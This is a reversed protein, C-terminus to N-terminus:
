VVVRSHSGHVKSDDDFKMKSLVPACVFITLGVFFLVLSYNLFMLPTQWTFIVSWKPDGNDDRWFDRGYFESNETEQLHEIVLSQQAASLTAAISLLLSSLWCASVAWHSTELRPWALAGVVSTFTLGGKSRLM